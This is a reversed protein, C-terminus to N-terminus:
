WLTKSHRGWFGLRNECQFQKEQVGERPKVKIEITNRSLRRTEYISSKTFRSSEKGIREYVKAPGILGLVYHRMVGMAEPSATYQGAERSIDKNGTKQTLIAHFRDIQTQSFWHGQDAVEYAKMGAYELVEDVDVFSYKRKLLKIYTDIIRSNYLPTDPTIPSKPM